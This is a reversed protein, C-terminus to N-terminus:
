ITSLPATIFTGYEETSQDTYALNHSLCGMGMVSGGSVDVGVGGGAGAGPGGRRGERRTVAASAAAISAMPTAAPAAIPGAGLAESALELRGASSPDSARIAALLAACLEVPVARAVAPAPLVFAVCAWVGATFGGTTFDGGTVGWIAGTADAPM